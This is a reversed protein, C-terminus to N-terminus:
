DRGRAAKLAWRGWQIVTGAEGGIGKLGSATLGEQKSSGMLNQRPLGPGPMESHSGMGRRELTRAPSVLVFPGFPLPLFEPLLFSGKSDDAKEEPSQGRQLATGMCQVTLM